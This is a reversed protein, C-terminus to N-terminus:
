LSNDLISTNTSEETKTAGCVKRDKVYQTWADNKGKTFAAKAKSIDSKYTTALDEFAKTKEKSNKITIAVKQIKLRNQIATKLATNEIDLLNSISTDRKTIANQVCVNFLEEDLNKTTKSTTTSTTTSTNTTTTTDKKVTADYLQSVLSRVQDDTMKNFMAKMSDPILKLLETRAQKIDMKNLDVSVKKTNVDSMTTNASFVNNFPLIILSLILLILVRKM